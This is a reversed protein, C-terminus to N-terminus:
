ANDFEAVRRHYRPESARRQYEGALCEREANEATNLRRMTDVRTNDDM